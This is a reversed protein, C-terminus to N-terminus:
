SKNRPARIQADVEALLVCKEADYREIIAERGGRRSLAETVDSFLASLLHRCAVSSFQHGARGAAAPGLERNVV